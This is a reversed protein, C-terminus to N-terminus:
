SSYFINNFEKEMEPTIKQIDESLSKSLEIRTQDRIKYQDKLQYPKLSGNGTNKLSNINYKEAFEKIRQQRNIQNETTAQSENSAYVMEWLGPKGTEQNMVEWLTDEKNFTHQKKIEGSDLNNENEIYNEQNQTSNNYGDLTNQKEITQEIRNNQQIYDDIKKDKNINGAMLSGAIATSLLSIVGIKWYKKLNTKVFNNTKTGYDKLKGSVYGIPNYMFKNQSNNKIRWNIKNGEKEYKHLIRYVSSTSFKKEPEDEQRKRNLQHKIDKVKINTNNYLDIIKNKDQDSIKNARRNVSYGNNEAKRLIKDLTYDKINYENCIEKRTIERHNNYKDLIEELNNDQRRNPIESTQVETNQREENL